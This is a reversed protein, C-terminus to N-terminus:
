RLPLRCQKRGAEAEPPQVAASLRAVTWHSNTKARERANNTRATVGGRRGAEVGAAYDAEAWAVATAQVQDHLAAIRQALREARTVRVAM